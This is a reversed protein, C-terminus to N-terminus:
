RPCAKHSLSCLAVGALVHCSSWDSGCFNLPFGSPVLQNEGSQWSRGEPRDRALHPAFSLGAMAFPTGCGSGLAIVYSSPM